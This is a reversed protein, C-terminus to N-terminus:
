AGYPELAVRALNRFSWWSPADMFGDGDPDLGFSKAMERAAREVADKHIGSM